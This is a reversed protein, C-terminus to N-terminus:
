PVAPGTTQAAYQDSIWRALLSTAIQNADLGQQECLLLFPTLVLPPITLDPSSPAPTALADIDTLLSSLFDYEGDDQSPQGAIEWQLCTPPGYSRVLGESRLDKLIRYAWKVLMPSAM